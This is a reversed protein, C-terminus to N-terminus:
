TGTGVTDTQGRGQGKPEEGHLGFGVFNIPNDTCHHTERGFHDGPNLWLEMPPLQLYLWQWVADGKEEAFTKLLLDQSHGEVQWLSIWDLHCLHGYGSSGQRGKLMSTEFSVAALPVCVKEPARTRRKLWANM